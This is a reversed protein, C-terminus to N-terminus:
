HPTFQYYADQMWNWLLMCVVLFVFSIGGFRRYNKFFLMFVCITMLIYWM